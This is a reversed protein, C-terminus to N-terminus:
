MTRHRRWATLRLSWGVILSSPGVVSGTAMLGASCFRSLVFVFYVCVAEYSSVDWVSRNLLHIHICIYIYIYTYLFTEAIYIHKYLMWGDM